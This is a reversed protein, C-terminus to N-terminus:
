IFNAKLYNFYNDISEKTTQNNAFTHRFFVRGESDTSFNVMFKGDRVIKFRLDYNFKNIDTEKTPPIVQYCVNLSETPHILKLEPHEEVYKTAYAANEFLTNILNEFGTDGMMKWTLWLKFADNRRGCQLSEPGLDYSANEYEHFIYSSGAGGSNAQTLANKHKTLFLSTILTSGMMKHADWTFSDALESGAILHKHKSSLAVSGGWAGDIHHWLDFKKCIKDIDTIPDFYGKVTTGATSAVFFPKKNEAIAQNIEQELEIPNMKGNTTKVKILNDSGIGMLNVAKDFSYHSEESVFMCLNNTSNGLKKIEPFKAARACHIAQMNANSGGTLMIGSGDDHGILKSMKKILEREMLTAVPAMEYTAMTTNTFATVIEGIVAFPNLGAFLQNNYNPHTTRVSFHLYKEILSHLDEGPAGLTFDFSNKLQKANKYNVVPTEPNYNEQIYQSLTEVIIKLDKEINM